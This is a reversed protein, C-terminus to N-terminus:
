AAEQIGVVVKADDLLTLNTAVDFKPSFESAVEAAMAVTKGEALASLFAHGGSPLRRVEVKLFPRAVVAAEAIWKEIMGNGENTRINEWITVIPFRSQVLRVTPHLIIRLEGFRESRLSSLVPVALPRPYAAREAKHLLMELEAVDAVYEIYADEGLNRIFRPFSDGYCSRSISASPPESLIFRRAVVRFSPVGVLRRIVPYRAALLGIPRTRDRRALVGGDTRRAMGVLVPRPRPTPGKWWESTLTEADVDKLSQHV